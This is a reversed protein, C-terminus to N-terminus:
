RAKERETRLLSMLMTGTKNLEDLHREITRRQPREAACWPAHASFRAAVLMQLTRELCAPDAVAAKNPDRFEEPVWTM